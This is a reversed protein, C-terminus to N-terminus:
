NFKVATPNFPGGFPSGEANWSKELIRHMALEDSTPLGLRKREQNWQLEEIKAQAEEPLEEFPRTCDLTNIDLKPETKVLCNWWLEKCKDLHIDLKNKQLSWIADNHKCKDCLEGSLLVVGDKLSVSIQDALIKVTLDKSTKNEPVKIIIDIEKLSQSWSYNDYTAGNYSDATTFKDSVKCPKLTVTPTSPEKLPKAPEEKNEDCSIKEAPKWKYFIQKVTQEALGPPLGVPCNQDTATQYFDTRRNLFGFIRNLFIPLTKCERLMSFLLDDHEASDVM